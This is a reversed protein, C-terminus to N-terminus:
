LRDNLIDIKGKADNAFSTDPYKNIVNQFSNLAIETMSQDREVDEIQYFYNLSKLYYAYGIDKSAPHLSIFRDLSNLSEDYFQSKYYCYASMLQSKAAWKSYPYQREIDEFIIAADIFDKKSVLSIAQDYLIKLEEGETTPVELKTSSCSIIFLSLFSLTVLLKYKHLM